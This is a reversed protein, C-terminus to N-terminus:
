NLTKFQSNFKRTFGNVSGIEGNELMEDVTKVVLLVTKRNRKLYFIQPVHFSQDFGM